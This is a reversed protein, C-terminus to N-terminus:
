IEFAERAPNKRPLCWRGNTFDPIPVPAGDMAASDERLCGIAM